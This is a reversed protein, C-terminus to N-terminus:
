KISKEGQEAELIQFQNKIHLTEQKLPLLRRGFQWRRVGKLEIFGKIIKKDGDVSEYFFCLWGKMIVM